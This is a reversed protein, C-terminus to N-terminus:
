TIGIPCNTQPPAMSWHENPVVGLVNITSGAFRVITVIGTALMMSWLGITLMMGKPMHWDSALGVTADAVAAASPVSVGIGQMGTVGAGHAGPEGVTSIPLIGARFLVDFHMHLQPPMM